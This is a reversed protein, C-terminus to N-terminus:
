DTFAILPEKGHFAASFARFTKLMKAYDEISEPKKFFIEDQKWGDKLKTLGLKELVWDLDEFCPKWEFDQIFFIKDPIQEVEIQESYQEHISAITYEKGSKSVVQGVQPNWFNELYKTAAGM